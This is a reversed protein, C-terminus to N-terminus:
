LGSRNGRNRSGHLEIYRVIILQNPQWSESRARPSAREIPPARASRPWAARAPDEKTAVPNARAAEAAEIAALPDPAYRSLGASTLRQVLTAAAKRATHDDRPLQNPAGGQRLAAMM